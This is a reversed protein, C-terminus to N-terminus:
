TCMPFVKLMDLCFSRCVSEITHPPAAVKLVGRDGRRLVEVREGLADIHALVGRCDGLFQEGEATLVLGRGVRDFLKLRLEQQLDMIQRSLAPQTIRLRLAAKSVTGLEAVAVFTRLRRLDMCEIYTQDAYSALIIICQVDAKIRAYRGCLM